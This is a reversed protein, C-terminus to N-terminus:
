RVLYTAKLKARGGTTEFRQTDTQGPALLHAFAPYETGHYDGPRWESPSVTVGAGGSALKVAANANLTGAGQTWVDFGQDDASSQLITKVTQSDAFTGHAAKYAQQILATAGVVVPTSRSTGGWTVWATRGDGVSNLTVDGPSYAGDATLDVGTVGNAGPGKNSWQTVDN